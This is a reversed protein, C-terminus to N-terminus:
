LWRISALVPEVWTALKLGNPINFRFDTLINDSDLGSWMYFQGKGGAGQIVFGKVGNIIRYGTIKLPFDHERQVSELGTQAMHSLDDGIQPFMTMDMNVFRDAAPPFDKSSIVVTSTKDGTIYWETGM